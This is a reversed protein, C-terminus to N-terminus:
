GWTPRLMLTRTLLRRTWSIQLQQSIPCLPKKLVAPFNERAEDRPPMTKLLGGELRERFVQNACEAADSARSEQFRSRLYWLSPLKFDAGVTAQAMDQAAGLGWFCSAAFIWYTESGKGQLVKACIGEQNAKSWPNPPGPSTKNASIASSQETDCRAGFFWALSSVFLVCCPGFRLAELTVISMALKPQCILSSSFRSTPFFSSNMPADLCIKRPVSTIKYPNPHSRTHVASPVSTSSKRPLSDSALPRPDQANPPAFLSSTV